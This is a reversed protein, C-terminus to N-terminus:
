WGRKIAGVVRDPEVWWACPLCTMEREIKDMDPLDDTRFEQVCDHVDNRFHAPSTVIGRSSLAREFDHRREVLVPFLFGNTRGNEPRPLSIDVLEDYYVESNSQNKELIRPIHRLNALGITAAIDNMQYKFGSEDINQKEIPSNRDLGFWRLKRARDIFYDPVVILGGDGTTLPKIAQFSFCCINGHGGIKRGDYTSGFAHACDEIVPPRYGYKDAHIDLIASLRNLDLPRGAFHVVCVALTDLDLKTELDNLDLNCTHTDVDVWRPRLGSALISSTTAFCSLPSTLVDLRDSKTILHFALQLASTCSNVTLATKTGLFTTLEAEFKEVQKGQGIYGSYLMKKVQHGAEPAMFVKFLPIM